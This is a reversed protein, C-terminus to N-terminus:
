KLVIMAFLCPMIRRDIKNVLMKERYRREADELAFGFDDEFEKGEGELLFHEVEAGAEDNGVAKYSGWYAHEETRSAQMM